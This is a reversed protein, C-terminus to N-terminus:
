LQVEMEIFKIKLCGSRLEMMGYFLRDMKEILNDMLISGVNGIKEGGAVKQGPVM